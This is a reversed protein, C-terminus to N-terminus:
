TNVCAAVREGIDLRHQREDEEALEEDSFEPQVGGARLFRPWCDYKLLHFIPRDSPMERSVQRM